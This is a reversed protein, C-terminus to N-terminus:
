NLEEDDFKIITFKEEKIAEVQKALRNTLETESHNWRWRFGVGFLKFTAEFAGMMTDNEISIEIIDFTYWNYGSFHWDCCAHVFARKGSWIYFTSSEEERKFWAM